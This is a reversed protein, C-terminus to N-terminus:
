IVNAPRYRQRSARAQARYFRPRDSHCDRGAELRDGEGLAHARLLSHSARSRNRRRHDACAYSSLLMRSESMETVALNYGSALFPTLVCVRTPVATSSLVYMCSRPGAAFTMTHAFVSPIHAEVLKEPLPGLWREPKWEASDAGWIEPDRNVWFVNPWVITGAPLFLEHIQKGDIGTVPSGLPLVVDEQASPSNSM